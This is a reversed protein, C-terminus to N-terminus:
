EEFTNNETSKLNEQPKSDGQVMNNGAVDKDSKDTCRLFFTGM